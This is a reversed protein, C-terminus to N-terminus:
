GNPSCAGLFVRAEALDRSEFEGTFGQRAQAVLERAAQTRGQSQWLKGLSLAARLEMSRSGKCRALELAKQFLREAEAPGSGERLGEHTKANLLIEGQLRFIDETWLSLGRVQSLQVAEDLARLAEKPRERLILIEAYVSFYFAISSGGNQAIVRQTSDFDGLEIAPLGDVRAVQQSWALLLSAQWVWQSFGLEVALDYVERALRQVTVADGLLHALATGFFAVFALTFPSGLQRALAIAEEGQQRARDIQGLHWRCLASHALVMARLDAGTRIRYSDDDVPALEYARELESLAQTFDSQFFHCGGLSFWAISLLNPRRENEAIRLLREALDLAQPLNGFAVHHARLGRVAWFREEGEELREALVEARAYTQEVEPDKYGKGIIVAAARSNQIRLERRDRDPGEALSQLLRLARDLHAIAESSATRRRALDGARVWFDIAPETLGAKTYHHALIEPTTEATEAFRTALAEAIQRHIQQRERKLLSEYAADQVLAHKFLYRAQSGFGKRYVLEAQVLRALEQELVAEGSSCVAALLEFPFVRGIVSAIQAIKKATGLRALRAALSDRLTAPLEQPDGSEHSELVAKTLEEVFLPVGDTRAVIQRRVEAPLSQEGTVRDILREAEEGNLPALTIQSLHARLGWLSELAQLRGTLLLLLPSSAIQDILRNLLDLTTPDLWHLDEILVVLPRREATELALAVLAELTKERQREPSLQPAPHCEDLPVDLLSAFLPVANGLALEGLAKDLQNLPSAGEPRLLIQRLLAVVPQLPSGQTYPSGFCSWWQAAGQELRERLALVLRSKGMGADGRIVIAQGNGERTLDWRSMLLELEQERGVLPPLGASSVEPSDVLELVRHPILPAAHGPLQVPPFAALAFSKDILSSTAPSVIVQGPEALSQLQMALDLTSGLTPEQGQPPVAVVASGTHVGIQLALSIPRGLDSDASMQAVQEALELAARVARRANDEHAQPYGFYILMRRGSLISGLHGDYHTAVVEALARLRLMLEQLVEPDFAQAPGSPGDKGVMECCVVTVQRRESAPSSSPKVTSGPVSDAGVLDVKQSLLDRIELALASLHKEIQPKRGESLSRGNGPRGQLGALWDVAQWACPNVFVPIVRLGETQRRALLLPVETGRIFESTLFDKSVLLVAVAARKMAGEIEPLWAEGAAIRKDDWVALDGEAELVQLHGVVRNKWVEDQHSYSIFVTPRGPSDATTLPM